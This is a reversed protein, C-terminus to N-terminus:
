CHKMWAPYCYLSPVFHFDPLFSAYDHNLRRDERAHGEDCDAAVVAVDTPEVAAVGDNKKKMKTTAAVVAGGAVVVVVVDDNTAALWAAGAVVVAAGGM